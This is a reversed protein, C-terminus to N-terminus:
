APREYLVKGDRLINESLSQPAKQLWVCDIKYLTEADEALDEIREWLKEPLDPADVAIDIDSRPAHDGRARSGYLLVRRAGLAAIGAVLGSLAPHVSAPDLRIDQASATM